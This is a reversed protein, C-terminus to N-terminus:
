QQEKEDGVEIDPYIASLIYDRKICVFSHSKNLLHTVIFNASQQDIDFHSRILEELEKYHLDGNLSNLVEEFSMKHDIGV